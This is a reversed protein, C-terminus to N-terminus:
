FTFIVQGGPDNGLPPGQTAVGVGIGVGLGIVVVAGIITWFWWEEYIPPGAVPAIPRVPQEGGPNIINEEDGSQTPRLAAEFAGQVLRLVGAELVGTDTQVTGQGRVLRRGSAVDFLLLELTAQGDGASSVRIVGIKALDLTTAVEGIPSGAAVREIDAEPIHSLADALGAVSEDRDALFANSSASRGRRVNLPEVFPAAGPRSVRIVHDGGILGDVTTPTRGRALFDVYVVAGPPNSEISVSGSASRADPPAASDYLEVVDPNFTDPDPQIHPMQTHLRRFVDLAQRRQGNFAHSAGLFLLAQGLDGPDEMAAAAADFDAVAGELEGIAEELELALYAQRGAELRTRARTLSSLASDDYGLFAQDPGRWDVGEITRLAARAAAGARMAIADAPEDMAVSVIYVRPDQAAAQSPVAALAALALLSVNRRDV